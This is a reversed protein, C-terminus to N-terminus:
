PMLILSSQSKCLRVFHHLWLDVTDRGPDTAFGHWKLVKNKWEYELAERDIQKMIAPSCIIEYKENVVQQIRNKACEWIHFFEEGLALATPTAMDGLYAEHADHMLMAFHLDTNEPYLKTARHMCWMSHDAVSYWKKTHGAFRCARSLGIAIDVPFIDEKSPVTINLFRGSYTRISDKTYLTEM